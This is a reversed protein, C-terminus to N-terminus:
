VWHKYKKPKNYEIGFKKLNEITFDYTLVLNPDNIRKDLMTIALKIDDKYSLIKLCVKEMRNPYDLWTLQTLGKYVVMHENRQLAYPYSKNIHNDVLKIGFQNWDINGMYKVVFFCRDRPDHSYSDQNFKFGGCNIIRVRKLRLIKLLECNEIDLNNVYPNYIHMIFSKHGVGYNNFTMYVKQNIHSLFIEMPNNYDVCKRFDISKYKDHNEEPPTNNTDNTDNTDNNFKFHQLVEMAKDVDHNICYEMLQESLSAM